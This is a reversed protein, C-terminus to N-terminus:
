GHQRRGSNSVRSLRALEESARHTTVVPLVLSVNSVKRDEMHKVLPELVRSGLLVCIGVRIRGFRAEVKLLRCRCNAWRLLSSPAFATLHAAGSPTTDHLLATIRNRMIIGSRANHPGRIAGGAWWLHLALNFAVERAVLVRQAPNTEWRLELMLRELNMRLFRTISHNNTTICAKRM